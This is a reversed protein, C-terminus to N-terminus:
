EIDVKKVKGPQEEPTRNDEDPLDSMFAKMLEMGTGTICKRGIERLEKDINMFNGRVNEPILEILAEKQYKHALRLKRIAEQNM